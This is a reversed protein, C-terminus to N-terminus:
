PDVEGLFSGRAKRLLGPMAWRHFRSVMSWIVAAVPRDYRIITAVSLREPDIVFVINASLCWSTAEFALWDEGRRAIKWGGIHDPSPRLALRLGLVGRWAFQGGLGAARLAARAWQEVSREGVEATSTTFVDLYDPQDFTSLRCMDDTAQANTAQHAIKM